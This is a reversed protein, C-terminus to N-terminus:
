VPRDERRNSRGIWADVDYGRREWYGPAPDPGTVEVSELWKISKYGYMPAVYLRVPGGHAASIPKGELRYAVIVDGRRAQDLTLSESYAGDFSRFRVGGAGAQVGARDLLDALRVGTWSVDTVRWGTVCQFDKRLNTPAMARLDAATLELSRDVLGGVQLRYDAESRSPLAGTVTYIRFRGVPFLSSFGTGDRSLVPALTRELLRQVRGGVLVGAAGLGLMGLVVRRGVPTDADVENPGRLGPVEDPGRLGAPDGPPGTDSSTV